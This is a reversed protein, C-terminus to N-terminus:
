SAVKWDCAAFGDNPPFQVAELQDGYDLGDALDSGAAFRVARARVSQAYALLESLGLDAGATQALAAEIDQILQDLSPIVSSLASLGAMSTVLPSAFPTTHM